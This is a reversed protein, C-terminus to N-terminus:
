NGDLGEAKNVAKQLAELVPLVKNLPGHIKSLIEISCEFLEPAAAILRANAEAEENSNTGLVFIGARNIVLGDPRRSVEWPGKTYSM